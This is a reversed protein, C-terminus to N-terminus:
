RGEKPFTRIRQEVGTLVFDTTGVKNGNIDTINVACYEKRMEDTLKQFIRALEPWPTPQFAENNVDVEVTFTARDSM